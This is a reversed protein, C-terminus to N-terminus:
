LVENLFRETEYKTFIDVYSDKRRIEEFEKWKIM